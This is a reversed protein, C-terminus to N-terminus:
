KVFTFLWKFHLLSLFYDYFDPNKRGVLCTKLFRIRLNLISEKLKTEHETSKSTLRLDLNQDLICKQFKSAYDHPAFPRM